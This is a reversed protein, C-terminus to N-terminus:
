FSVACELLRQLSRLRDGVFAAPVHVDRRDRIRQLCGFRVRFLLGVDGTPRPVLPRLRLSCRPLYVVQGKIGRRYKESDCAVRFNPDQRSGIFERTGYRSSIFGSDARLDM